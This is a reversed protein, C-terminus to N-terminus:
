QEKSKKELDESKKELDESKKELDESKKASDELKKALDESKKYELLKFVLTDKRNKTTYHIGQRDLM